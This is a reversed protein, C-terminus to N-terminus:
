TFFKSFKISNVASATLVMISHSLLIEDNKLKSSNLVLQALERTGAKRFVMDGIDTLLNERYNSIHELMSIFITSSSELIEDHAVVQNILTIVEQLVSSNSETGGLARACVSLYRLAINNPEEDLIRRTSGVLRKAQEITEVERLLEEIKPLGIQDITKDRWENLKETFESEQLYSLIADRFEQHNTFDRCIEGMTRLAQIRKDVIEQYVFDILIDISGRLTIELNDEKINSLGKELRNEFRYQRLYRRLNNKVETPYLNHITIKFGRPNYNITYDQVVGLLMLRFLSQEKVKRDEDGSFSISITKTANNPLGKAINALHDSWFAKAQRKEIAPGKYANFIFWLQHLVDGRDDWNIRRLKNRAVAHDKMEM